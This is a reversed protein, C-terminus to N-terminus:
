EGFEGEGSGSGPEEEREDEDQPRRRRGGGRGGGGRRNSSGRAGNTQDRDENDNGREDEPPGRNGSPRGRNGRSGNNRRRSGQNGRGRSRPGQDNDSEVEGDQDQPDGISQGWRRSGSAKVMSDNMDDNGYYDYDTENFDFRGQDNWPDMDDSHNGGDQHHPGSHDYWGGGDMPPFMPCSDSRCSCKAITQWHWQSTFKNFLGTSIRLGESRWVKVTGLQNMKTMDMGETDYGNKIMERLTYDMMERGLFQSCLEKDTPADGIKTGRIRALDGRMLASQFMKVVDLFGEKADDSMSSIYKVMARLFVAANPDKNEETSITDTLITTVMEIFEDLDEMELPLSFRAFFRQWIESNLAMGIEDFSTTSNPMTFSKQKILKSAIDAWTSRLEGSMQSCLMGEPQADQSWIVQQVCKVFESLINSDMEQDVNNHVMASQITYAVIQSVSPNTKGGHPMNNMSPKGMSRQRFMGNKKPMRHGSSDGQRHSQGGNKHWNHPPMQPPHVEAGSMEMVTRVLMKALAENGHIVEFTEAVAKTLQTFHKKDEQVDQTTAEFSETLARITESMQDLLSESSSKMSAVLESLTECNEALGGTLEQVFGDFVKLHAAHFENMSVDRFGNARGVYETAKGFLATESNTLIANEAMKSYDPIAQCSAEEDVGMSQNCDQSIPIVIVNNTRNTDKLQKFPDLIVMVFTNSCLSSNMLGMPLRTDNLNLEVGQRTIEKVTGNEQVLESLLTQSHILKSQAAQITMGTVNLSSINAQLENRVMINNAIQDWNGRLDNDNYTVLFIPPLSMLSLSPYVGNKAVIKISKIGLQGFPNIMGPKLMAENLTGRIFEPDMELALDIDDPIQCELTVASSTFDVLTKNKGTMVVVLSGLGCPAQAPVTLAGLELRSGNTPQLDGMKTFGTTDEINKMWPLSTVTAYFAMYGFSEDSPVKNLRVHFNSCIESLEMGREISPLDKADPAKDGCRPSDLYRAWSVNLLVAVFFCGQSSLLKM